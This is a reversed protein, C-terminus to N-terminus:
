HNHGTHGSNNLNAGDKGPITQGNGMMGGTVLLQAATRQEPTLINRADVNARISSLLLAGSLEQNARIKKEVANMDVKDQDFLEQLEIQAAAIKARLDIIEKNLARQREKLKSVQDVSLGLEDAYSLYVTLNNGWMMGMGMGGTGMMGGSRGMMGMGMGMGHMRMMGSMQASSVTAIGATALILIVAVARRHIKM